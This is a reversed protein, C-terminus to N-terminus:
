LIDSTGNEAGAALADDSLSVDESQFGTEPAPSTLPKFKSATILDQLSQMAALLDDVSAPSSAVLTRQGTGSLGDRSMTTVSPAALLGSGRNFLAPAANATVQVRPPDFNGVLPQQFKNGFWTFLDSGFPGPVFSLFGQQVRSLLSRGGSVFFSWASSADRSQLGRYIAIDDLGDGDIDGAVPREQVGNFPFGTGISFGSTIRGNSIGGGLSDASLLFKNTKPNYLGLDDGGVGDFNGVIPLGAVKSRVSRDLRFDKPNSTDFYWRKGAFLGIEDGDAPNGNFEGAVPIGKPGKSAYVSQTAFGDDSVLWKIGSSTKRYAAVQDFGSGDFDGAFVQDTAAGRALWLDRNSADWNHADFGFNGNIDLHM